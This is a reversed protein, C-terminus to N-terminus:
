GYKLQFCSDLFNQYQDFNKPEDRQHDSETLIRDQGKKM